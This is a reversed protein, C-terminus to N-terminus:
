PKKFTLTRTDFTHADFLLPDGEDLVAVADATQQARCRVIVKTITGGQRRFEAYQEPTLEQWVYPRDGKPLVVVHVTKYNFKGYVDV